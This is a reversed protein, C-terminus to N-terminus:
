RDDSREGSRTGDAAIRVWACKLTRAQRTSDATRVGPLAGVVGPWYQYLDGYSPLVGPLCLNFRGTTADTARNCTTAGPYGCGAQEAVWGLQPLGQDFM